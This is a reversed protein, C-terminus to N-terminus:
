SPRNARLDRRRRRLVATLAAAWVLILVIALGRGYDLPLASPDDARRGFGLALPVAVVLLAVTVFGAVRAAVRDRAPVFRGILVGATIVVPLLVFDHVAVVGGLFLLQQWPRTQPDTLAGVVAYGMLLVGAAVLVRRTM